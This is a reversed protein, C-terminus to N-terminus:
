VCLPTLACFMGAELMYQMRRVVLDRYIPWDPSIDTIDGPLDTVPDIDEYEEVEAIHGRQRNTTFTVYHDKGGRLRHLLWEEYLDVQGDPIERRRNRHRQLALKFGAEGRVQNFLDADRWYPTLLSEDIARLEMKKHAQTSFLESRM